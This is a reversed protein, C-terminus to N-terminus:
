TYFHHPTLIEPGDETIVITKEFHASHGGDATKYTFQDEALVIDDGGDNFMPEIAIVLGPVLKEGKGPRGYNPVYPAEHAEYGVGHGALERVIGYKYKKVFSEIAYGIDGTYFGSQAANIGVALAERTVTILKQHLPSIKGVPVTMAMDTYLGSHIVGLDIGVIDGEKLVRDTPIGHVVADNVSVCLSAPFAVAALDPRYNKFAPKDGMELITKEALADLEKETVGPTVAEAVKNLVFSLRKGGERLLAIENETKLRVRFDAM